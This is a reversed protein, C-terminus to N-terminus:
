NTHPVRFTSFIDRHMESYVYENQASKQEEQAKYFKLSHLQPRSIEVFLNLSAIFRLVLPKTYSNPM